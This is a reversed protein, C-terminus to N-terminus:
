LTAMMPESNPATHAVEGDEMLAHFRNQVNVAPCRVGNDVELDVVLADLMDEHTETDGVPDLPPERNAKILAGPTAPVTFPVTGSSDQDIQTAGVPECEMLRPAVNRLAGVYVDDLFAFLVEGDRFEAKVAVLADHIALSFLLPM